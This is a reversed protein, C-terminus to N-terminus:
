GSRIIKKIFENQENESLSMYETMLDVNMIIKLLVAFYKRLEVLVVDNWFKHDREIKNVKMNDEDGGEDNLYEVLVAHELDYVDLYTQVQLWEYERIENFLKYMRNKIEIIVGDDNMADVKSIVWMEVGGEDFLRKSKSDLGTIVKEGKHAKKYIDLANGERITGFKKSTYGDMATKLTEKEDKTLTKDEMIVGVLGDKDTKMKKSSLNARCIKDLKEKLDTNGELKKSIEMIIGKDGVNASVMKEILGMKKLQDPFYREYLQNFIRSAPLYHNRGIFAAM